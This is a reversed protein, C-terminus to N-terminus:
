IAKAFRLQATGAGYWTKDTALAYINLRDLAFSAKLKVVRLRKQAGGEVALGVGTAKSTRSPPSM